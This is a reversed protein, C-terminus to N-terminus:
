KCLEGEFKLDKQTLSRTFCKHRFETKNNSLICLESLQTVTLENCSNTIVLYYCKSLLCRLIELTQIPTEIIEFKNSAIFKHSSNNLSLECKEETIIPKINFDKIILYKYM